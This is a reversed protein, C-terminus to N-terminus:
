NTPLTLHTYSVADAGWDTLQLDTHNIYADDFSLQDYGNILEALMSFGENLWTDENMDTYWHIMHQFEHALTAQIDDEWLYVNDANILFM